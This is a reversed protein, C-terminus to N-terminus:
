FLQTHSGPDQNKPKGLVIQRNRGFSRVLPISESRGLILM